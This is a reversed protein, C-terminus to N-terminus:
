ARRGQTALPSVVPFGHTAMRWDQGELELLGRPTVMECLRSHIRAGYRAALDHFSVNSTIVVPLMANYRSCFLREVKDLTWLSRQECAGFDDLVLVPVQCARELANPLRSDSIMRREHDLLDAESTFWVDHEAVAMKATLAAALCTKGSGVPGMVYLSHKEPAYAEMAYIVAANHPTVGVAGPGCREKLSALSERDKLMVQHTLRLEAYRRPLGTRELRALTARRKRKAQEKREETLEQADRCDRCLDARLWGGTIRDPRPEIINDCGSCPAVGPNDDYFFGAQFDPHILKGIAVPGTM